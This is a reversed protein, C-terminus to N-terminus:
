GNGILRKQREVGGRMTQHRWVLSLVLWMLESRLWVRKLPSKRLRGARSVSEKRCSRRLRLEAQYGEVM